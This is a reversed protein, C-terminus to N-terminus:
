PKGGQIKVSDVKVEDYLIRLNRAASELLLDAEDKSKAKGVMGAIVNVTDVAMFYRLPNDMRLFYRYVPKVTTDPIPCPKPKPYKKNMYKGTTDKNQTVKLTAEDNYGYSFTVDYTYRDLYGCKKCSLNVKDWYVGETWGHINGGKEFEVEWGNYKKPFGSWYWKMIEFYGPPELEKHVAPQHTRFALTLTLASALIFLKTTIM